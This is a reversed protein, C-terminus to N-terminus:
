GWSKMREIGPREELEDVMGKQKDSEGATRGERRKWVQEDLNAGLRHASDTNWKLWDDARKQMEKKKKKGKKVETQLNNTTEREENRRVKNTGRIKDAEM